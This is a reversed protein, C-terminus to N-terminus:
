GIVAAEKGQIKVSAITGGTVKGDKSPNNQFKITGPLQMHMSDNHKAISDKTACAKDKIKVSNSLGNALRGIFPHPLPIICNRKREM